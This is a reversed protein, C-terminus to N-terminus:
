GFSGGDILQKPSFAEERAGEWGESNISLCGDLGIFEVWKVM